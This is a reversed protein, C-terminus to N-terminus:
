DIPVFHLKGTLMDPVILQKKEEDLYFDAATTLGQLVVQPHKAGKELRWVKGQTWSSVYINGARDQEVGDAGRFGTALVKLKGQDAELLDGKFFEGILLTGNARAFIGNPCPMHPTNTVVVSVKGDLTIRFIRGIAPLAKAGESDLPWLKGEPDFMQPVAGTDSIYVSKRDPALAVDNLFTVQVPFDKEDALIAKKGQADIKWVRKNDTTILHDGTFTIGKPDDLGTAFDRLKGNEIVRIVGDGPEEGNMVTVYYHGNFGKTVSEPRTGIEIVKVEALAMACAALLLATSITTKM